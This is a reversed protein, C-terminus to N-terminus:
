EAGWLQFTYFYGPNTFSIPVFTVPNWGGEKIMEEYGPADFQWLHEPNTDLSSADTFLPSSAVLNKACGRALRLIGVPDEVHELIETLVVLDFYRGSTLTEEISDHACSLEDPLHPRMTTGVHYFNADLHRFSASRRDPADPARRRRNDWRRL